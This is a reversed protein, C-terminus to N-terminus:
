GPRNIPPQGEKEKGHEEEFVIKRVVIKINVKKKELENITTQIAARAQMTTASMLEKNLRSIEADYWALTDKLPKKDKDEPDKGGAQTARNASKTM